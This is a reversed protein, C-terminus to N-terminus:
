LRSRPPASFICCCAPKAPLPGNTPIGSASIAFRTCAKPCSTSCSAACSSRAMSPAPAGATPNAISTASPFPTSTSRSSAHIPSPLAFSTVRSIDSSPRRERAGLPYDPRGLSHDLRDRPYDSRSAKACVVGQAQRVRAQRHSDQPCPLLPPRSALLPYSRHLRRWRYRPLARPPPLPAAPDMHPPRDARRPHRRRLPPRPCYRHHCASRGEDTPCIRGAPQRAPGRPAARARHRDCSLLPLPADRAQPGPALARYGRYPVKLLQPEWLQPLFVGRARLSQVA